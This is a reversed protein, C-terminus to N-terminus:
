KCQRVQPDDMFFYKPRRVIMVNRVHTNTIDAFSQKYGVNASTSQGSTLEMNGWWVAPNCGPTNACLRRRFRVGGLGQNHAADMMAMRNCDDKAWDISRYNDRNKIVVARLQYEVNYPDSWSWYKFLSPYKDKLETLADFKTTKTFQGLGAGLEDNNKPNRATAGPKWRSEQEIQAALVSPYPIGSWQSNIERILVPLYQVAGPPLDLSGAM